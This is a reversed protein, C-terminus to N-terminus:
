TSAEHRATIGISNSDVTSEKWLGFDTNVGLFDGNGFHELCFPVSRYPQCIADRVGVLITVTAAHIRYTDRDERSSRYTAERYLQSVSQSDLTAM